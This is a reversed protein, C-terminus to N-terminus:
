KGMREWAVQEGFLFGEDLLLSGGCGTLQMSMGRELQDVIFIKSMCTSVTRCLDVFSNVIVKSVTQFNSRLNRRLSRKVFSM